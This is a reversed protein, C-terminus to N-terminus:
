PGSPARAGGAAGISGTTGAPMRRDLLWAVAFSRPLGAALSGLVIRWPPSLYVLILLGGSFVWLGSLTWALARRRRPAAELALAFLASIAANVSAAGLSVAVLVTTRDTALFARFVEGAHDLLLYPPTTVELQSSLADFALHAVGALAWLLAGSPRQVPRAM